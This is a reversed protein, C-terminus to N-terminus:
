NKPGKNLTYMVTETAIKTKIQLNKKIALIHSNM